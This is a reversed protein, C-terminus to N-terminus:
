RCDDVAGRGDGRVHDVHRSQGDPVPRAATGATTRGTLVLNGVHYTSIATTTASGLGTVAGGVMFLQGVRQATTMRDYAAQAQAGPTVTLSLVEAAVWPPAAPSARGVSASPAATVALASVAVPASAAALCAAFFTMPRVRM